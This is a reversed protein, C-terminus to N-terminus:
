SILDSFWQPSGAREVYKEVSLIGIENGFDTLLGTNIVDGTSWRGNVSPSILQGQTKLGQSRM